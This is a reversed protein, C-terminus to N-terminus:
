TDQCANDTVMHVLFDEQGDDTGDEPGDGPDNPQNSL